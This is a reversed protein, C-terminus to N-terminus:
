SPRELLQAKEAGTVGANARYTELCRAAWDRVSLTDPVDWWTDDQDLACIAAELLTARQADSIHKDHRAHYGIETVATIKEILLQFRKSLDAHRAEMKQFNQPDCALVKEAVRDIRKTLTAIAEEAAKLRQDDHGAIAQKKGM